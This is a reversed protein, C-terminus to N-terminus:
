PHASRAGAPLALDATPEEDDGVFRGPSRALGELLQQSASLEAKMRTLEEHTESVRDDKARLELVRLRYIWAPFAEITGVIFQLAAVIREHELAVRTVAALQDQRVALAGQYEVRVGPESARTIADSLRQIERETGDRPSLMLYRGLEDADRVLQSAQQRLDELSAVAPGLHARVPEPTTKLVRAIEEYGKRISRVLLQLAPDTLTSEAPLQRAEAAEAELINRWFRPSMSTRAILLLYICGGAVAIWLHGLLLGTALWATLAILNPTTRVSQAVIRALEPRPQEVSM